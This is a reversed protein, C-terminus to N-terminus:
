CGGGGGGGGGGSGPIRAPAWHINWFYQYEWQGTKPHQYIFYYDELWIKNDAATPPQIRINDYWYTGPALNRNESARNSPSNEVRFALVTNTNPEAAYPVQLNFAVLEPSLNELYTKNALGPRGKWWNDLRIRSTYRYTNHYGNDYVRTGWTGVLRSEMPVLWNEPAVYLANEPTLGVDKARKFYKSVWWKNDLSYWLTAVRTFNNANDGGVNYVKIIFEFTTSDVWKYSVLYPVIAPRYFDEYIDDMEPSVGFYTIAEVPVGPYPPQTLINEIQRILPLLKANTYDRAVNEILGYLTGTGQWKSVYSPDWARIVPNEMTYIVELGNVLLYLLRNDQPVGRKWQDYSKYAMCLEYYEQESILGPGMYNYLERLDNELYGGTAKCSNLLLQVQGALNEIRPIYSRARSFNEYYWRYNENVRNELTPSLAGVMERQLARLQLARLSICSDVMNPGLWASGVEPCELPHAMTAQALVWRSPKHVVAVEDGIKLFGQRYSFSVVGGGSPLSLLANKVKKDAPLPSAYLVYELENEVAQGNVKVELNKWRVNEFLTGMDTDMLFDAYFAEKVEEGSVNVVGVAGRGPFNRWLQLLVNPTQSLNPGGVRGAIFSVGVGLLFVMSVLLITGLLPSVGIRQKRM